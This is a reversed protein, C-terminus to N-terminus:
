KPRAFADQQYNFTCRIFGYSDVPMTLGGTIVNAERQFRVRWNFDHNRLRERLQWLRHESLASQVQVGRPFRRNAKGEHNVM